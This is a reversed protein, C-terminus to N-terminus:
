DVLMAQLVDKVELIHKEELRGLKRGLRNKDVTRIQDLVIFGTKNQFRIGM